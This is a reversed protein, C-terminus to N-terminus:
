GGAERRPIPCAVVVSRDPTVEVTLSDGFGYVHLVIRRIKRLGSGGEVMAGAGDKDNNLKERIASEVHTRSVAADLEGTVILEFRDGKGAATVEIVPARGEIRSHQVVNSFCNALLDVTDNLFAGDIMGDEVCVVPEIPHAPYCKNIIKTALRIANTLDFPAASLVGSRSFWSKARDSNLLFETQAHTFLDSLETTALKRNAKISRVANDIFTVIQDRATDIRAKVKPMDDEAMTWFHDFLQRQLEEYSTDVTIGARFRNMTTAEVDFAFLGDPTEQTRVRVAKTKLEVIKETTRDSFRKLIRYLDQIAGEDHGVKEGWYSRCEQRAFDEDDSLLLSRSALSNRLEGELSGHLVRTSLYTQFGHAPDLAFGNLSVTYITRFLGERETSPLHLADGDFGAAELLKRLRDEIGEVRLDLAPEGLLHKYRNFADRLETDIRRRVGAEDVYLRSRDLHAELAAVEQDKVIAAIEATYRKRQDPDAAILWQLIAIREAEIDDYSDFVTGDEMTEITCVSALFYCFAKHSIGHDRQILDSPSQCDHFDLVDEYADSVEGPSSGQAAELAINLVIARDVSRADIRSFSAASRALDAIPFAILSRRNEFYQEGFLAYAEDTNGALSLAQYLNRIADFRAPVGSLMADRYATAAASFQEENFRLHGLYADRRFGPLPLERVVDASNLPTDLALVHLRTSVPASTTTRAVTGPVAEPALRRLLRLHKPNDLPSSIAWLVQNETFRNEVTLDSKRDLFAAICAAAPQKRGLLALKQLDTEPTQSDYTLMLFSRMEAVARTSLAPGEDPDPRQVGLRAGLEYWWASASTRSLAYDVLSRAEDLNGVTYAECAVVFDEDAVHVASQDLLAILNQLRMDPVACVQELARRLTALEAPDDSRIWILQSMEVLTEFRDVIPSNEELLVCVYPNDVSSLGAPSVHYRFYAIIDGDAGKESLSELERLLEPVSVHDELGFSYYFALYAFFVNVRPRGTVDDLFAKQASTGKSLQILLLRSFMLWSSVGLEAQIADLTESAGAYDGGSIEAYFADRKGVFFILQESFLGLVGANWVLDNRPGAPAIPRRPKIDEYDKPFPSAAFVSMYASSTSLERLIPVIHDEPVRSRHKNLGKFVPGLSHLARKFTAADTIRQPEAKKKGAKPKRSM